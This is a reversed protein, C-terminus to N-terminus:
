CTLAEQTLDEAEVISGTMRYCHAIIEQRHVEIQQSFDALPQSM